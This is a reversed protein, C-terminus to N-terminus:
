ARYLLCWRASLVKKESHNNITKPGNNFFLVQIEIYKYKNLDMRKITLLKIDM